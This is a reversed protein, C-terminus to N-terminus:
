FRFTKPTKVINECSKAVNEFPTNEQTAFTNCVTFLYSVAGVM